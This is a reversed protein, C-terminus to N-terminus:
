WRVKSYHSAWQRLRISFTKKNYYNLSCSSNQVHVSMINITCIFIKHKFRWDHLSCLQGCENLGLMVQSASGWIHLCNLFTGVSVSMSGFLKPLNEAALGIILTLSELEWRSVIRQVTKNKYVLLIILFATMYHGKSVATRRLIAMQVRCSSASRLFILEILSSDYFGVADIPEHLVFKNRIIVVPTSDRAAGHKVRFFYKFIM